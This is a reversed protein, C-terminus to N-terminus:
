QNVSTRRFSFFYPEPHWFACCAAFHGVEKILNLFICPTPSYIRYSLTALVVLEMRKVDEPTYTNASMRSFDQLTPHVVQLIHLILSASIRLFNLLGYQVEEMKSALLVAAIAALQLVKRSVPQPFASNPMPFCLYQASSM